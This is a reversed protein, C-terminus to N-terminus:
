WAPDTEIPDNFDFVISASNTIVVNSPADDRVKIRYTLHGEGRHTDDNSPLFGSGDNPWGLLGNPDYVRMRWHVVGTEAITGEGDEGGGLSVRVYKDTGNMKIDRSGKAFGDLSNDNQNNFAVDRMEFTSWDLWESLPNTVKVDQADAIDFGEKNEFYITYILEQGPMVYRKDGVGEDGVMENPDCSQNSTGSGTGDGTWGDGGPASPGGPPGGDDNKEGVSVIAKYRYPGTIFEDDFAKLSVNYSGKKTFTMYPNRETSKMGNGFDWEYRSAETQVEPTMWVRLRPGKTQNTFQVGAPAELNESPNFTFEPEPGVYRCVQFRPGEISPTFWQGVNKNFVKLDAEGKLDAGIEVGCSVPSKLGAKIYASMFIDLDVTASIALWELGFKPVIGMRAELSGEVDGYPEVKAEPTPFPKLWKWDEDDYREMGIQMMQTVHGHIGATGSIQATFQAYVEAEAKAVLFPVSTPVKLSFPIPVSQRLRAGANGEVGISAEIASEGIFAWMSYERGNRIDQVLSFRFDPKLGVKATVGGEAFLRFGDEDAGRTSAQLWPSRGGASLLSPRPSPVDSEAPISIAMAFQEYVDTMKGKETTLTWIDGSRSIGTVRRIYWTDNFKGLIANGVAIDGVSPSGSLVLTDEELEFTELTGSNTGFVIAGSKLITEVAEEVRVCNPYVSTTRAGGVETITLTVTNTGQKTYTWTPMASTSDVSGDSDFDWAWAVVNTARNPDTFFFATELKGFGVRLAPEFLPRAAAALDITATDGAVLTVYADDSVDTASYYGIQYRGPILGDFLYSGDEGVMVNFAEGGQAIARVFGNTFTQGDKTVVGSVVGGKRMFVSVEASRSAEDIVVVGSDTTAWGDTALARIVNTGNPLGAFRYAGYDDAVVVELVGGSVDTRAVGVGAVPAGDEGLVYGSIRGGPTAHVTLGNLDSQGAITVTNTSTSALMNGGDLLWRYEGDALNTLQFYGAEDTTATAPPLNTSDGAWVLSIDANALPGGTKADMLYGSAAACAVGNKEWLAQDVFDHIDYATRGRMNLRTAAASMAALYAKTGGFTPYAALDEADTIHSLNIKYTGFPQFYFPIRAEDGAKLVGAPHTPSIGGVYLTTETMGESAVLGMKTRFDERAVKFVPMMMPSDGENAYCVYGTFVRGDRVSSPVELWARLKPGMKAAYIEVADHLTAPGAAGAISVAIDYVGDAMGEVDFTAAIQAANLREVSKAARGGLSVTTDASLGSGTITVTAEGTNAIRGPTAGYLALNMERVEVSVTAAANGGNELVLYANEGEARAPFVILLSGDQLPLVAPETTGGQVPSGGTRSNPVAGNGGYVALADTMGAVRVVGGSLPLGPLVFGALEGKGVTVSQTGIGMAELGVDIADETTASNNSLNQEYPYNDTNVAVVVKWKGAKLMPVTITATQTVSAGAAINYAQQIEAADITQGGLSADAGKFRFLDRALGSAAAVGRNTVVYNVTIMDGSTSRAALANVVVVALDPLPVPVTGPVEYIGIDPCVGDGNPTGTDKIRKVDMRPQGYYDTEPAFTGDGADVCPSNAAIRCFDVNDFDVFRPNLVFLPDAYICGNQGVKASAHDGTGEPNWFCCNYFKSNLTSSYFKKDIIDESIDSFICNRFTGNGWRVATTLYNFVCNIFTATGSSPAAGMSSDMFVSNRATFTGGYSRMCDYQCHAVISNDFQWTGGNPYLAGQDNQACCWLVKCYNLKVTGSGTIQHWDGPQAYTKNGDGNADGGHEDDKLSTFVIPAARTGQADLTGNVTLSCGTNFKLITGPQLTLTAGSAVTVSNSVIYTRHGRLRTDSSISSTLTQPLMYRYETSDDDTITGTITYDGMKAVTSDGDMMTDGGITDDNVHTFIVGRATCSGGSAVTLSTGPMFKVVVGAEITLSVGSSVTLAVTVLHVKNTGWTENTGITGNTGEHVAVDDGLVTFQATLTEGGATHTLTHGGIGSPTWTFSGAETTAAVLAARGIETVTCSAAGNWHPSYAVPIAEGEQAIRTGEATDLLFSASDGAHTVMAALVATLALMYKIITM